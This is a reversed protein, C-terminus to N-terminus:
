YQPEQQAWPETDESPSRTLIARPAMPISMSRDTCCMRLQPSTPEQWPPETDPGNWNMLFSESAPAPSEYSLLLGYKAQEDSDSSPM